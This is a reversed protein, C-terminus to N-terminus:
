RTVVCNGSTTYASDAYNSKTAKVRFTYTGSTAVTVTAANTLGSYVTTYAGGDKSAELVYTVGSINSTSWSVTINGTTNTAPVTITAPAGCILTVVCNGSTTYASDAYNSKTAKVRFTYTGSTAVTVTAANTLGSYVTTYAGGDKSAELVYTVGSINSTSWSVTIKGTTNTAPATITAPAGCLLTVVCNGSTTYASDAYNSKTAKVRFTYTGSTAVTVTAANTLGSYVTTYAGGDKSAELVYTVGSINSTGWSVTIKGTTNTAPATITAPAGCAMTVVCNGSTTYDSDAYNSKTAKVRFTYTGNAVTVTVANTLGSYVATYAGGDKSSELVYIIGSVYPVGYIDNTDWRVTISGTSNTAPVTITAPAFCILTVVCDGSTTYASDAYGSKIAKM